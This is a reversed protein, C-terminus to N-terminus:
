LSVEEKRERWCFVAVTRYCLEAAIPQSKENKLKEKFVAVKEATSISKLGVISDFSKKILNSLIFRFVLLVYM